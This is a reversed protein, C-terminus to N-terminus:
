GQVELQIMPVAIHHLYKWVAMGTVVWRCSKGGEVSGDICGQPNPRVTAFFQSLHSLMEPREPGGRLREDVSKAVADLQKQRVVAKLVGHGLDQQAGGFLAVAVLETRGTLLHQLNGLVALCVEYPIRFAFLCCLVEVRLVFLVHHAEDEGGILASFAEQQVLVERVLSNVDHEPAVCGMTEM